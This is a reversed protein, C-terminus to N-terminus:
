SSDGGGALLALLRREEEDSLGAGHPGPDPRGREWDLTDALTQELPRTTLGAARARATSHANMGYWDPDDLWLPLSTPGMWSQVGHEALWSPSAPVLPGSHGAVARALALHDALPRPEGATNFVGATGAEACGVIWAALDRVDIVAAPVQPDDPVLVAREPNSPHAFRWPWYGSRGSGDGPGGILGARAVLARGAGFGELVARECAVKAEGYSEMSEMVDSGLPPLLAADEDEGLERHGAYVNASSIFLYREAVPELAVVARRVHGPHRAVDVVADWRDGSVGDYADPRDRDAAVLRVDDATPGAEGRALCTVSHGRAVAERAIERGLWATGGLVLLDV